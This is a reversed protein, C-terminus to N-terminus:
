HTICAHSVEANARIEANKNGLKAIECTNNSRLEIVRFNCVKHRNRSCHKQIALFHLVVLTSCQRFSARARGAHCLFPALYLRRKIFTASHSYPNQAPISLVLSVEFHSTLRETPSSWKADPMARVSHTFLYM